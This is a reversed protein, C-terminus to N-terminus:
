NMVIATEKAEDIINRLDIISRKVEVSRLDFVM